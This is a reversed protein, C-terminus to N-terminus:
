RIEHYFWQTALLTPRISALLWLPMHRYSSMGAIFLLIYLLKEFLPFKNRYKITLSFSLTVYMWLFIDLFVFAPMWEVINWRLKHDTMQMWIEWWIREKYPNVFTVAVSLVLLLLDGWIVRKKEIIRSFIFVLLVFISIPFGGHLNVWLLIVGILGYRLTSLKTYNKLYVLLLSFLFWTIIQTRVGMFPYMTFGILLVPIASWRFGSVVIQLLIAGVALSAFVAALGNKGILPLSSALLVNTLWEHDVFPYSPMTYSLPDTAPIGNKLIEQGMRIHWGFDSDLSLVSRYLFLFFIALICGALITYKKM